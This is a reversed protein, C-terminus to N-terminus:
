EYEQRGIKVTIPSVERSRFSDPPDRRNVSLYQDLLDRRPPLSMGFM